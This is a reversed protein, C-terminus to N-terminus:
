PRGDDLRTMLQLRGAAPDDSGDVVVEVRGLGLSIRIVVVVVVVVVLVVALVSRLRVARLRVAELLSGLVARAVSRRLRPEAATTARPYTPSGRSTAAAASPKGTMPM